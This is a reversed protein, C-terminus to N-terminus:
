NACYRLGWLRLSTTSMQDDNNNFLKVFNSRFILFVLGDLHFLYNPAAFKYFTRVHVVDYEPENEVEM